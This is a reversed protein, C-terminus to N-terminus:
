FGLGIQGGTQFSKHWILYPYPVLLPIRLTSLCVKFSSLTATALIWVESNWTGLFVQSNELRLSWRTADKLYFQQALVLVRIGSVSDIVAFSTTM